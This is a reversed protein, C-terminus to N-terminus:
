KRKRSWHAVTWMLRTVHYKTEDRTEKKKEASRAERPFSRKGFAEGKPHRENGGFMVFLENAGQTKTQTFCQKVRQRLLPLPHNSGGRLNEQAKGLRYFM